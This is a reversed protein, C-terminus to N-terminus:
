GIQCIGSETLTDVVFGFGHAFENGFEQRLAVGIDTQREAGESDM